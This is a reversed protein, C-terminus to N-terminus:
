KRNFLNLSSLSKLIDSTDVEQLEKALREAENEEIDENTFLDSFDGSTSATKPENEAKGESKQNVVQVPPVAESIDTELKVEKATMATEGSKENPVKTAAVQFVDKAPPKVEKAIPQSDTNNKVPGAKTTQVGSIISKTESTVAGSVARSNRSKQLLPISASSEFATKHDEPTEGDALSEEKQSKELIGSHDPSALTNDRTPITGVLHKKSDFGHDTSTQLSSKQKDPGRSSIEGVVVIRQERNFGKYKWFLHLLKALPPEKVPGPQGNSLPSVNGPSTTIEDRAALSNLRAMSFYYVTLALVLATMFCIGIFFGMAMNPHM